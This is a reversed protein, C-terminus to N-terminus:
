PATPHAKLWADLTEIEKSQTDVIGRALARLDPDTGYQLEVRAMDIAGAHHARMMRAFDADADGTMPGKMGEDMRAMAQMLADNAPGGKAMATGAQAIALGLFIGAILTPFRPM